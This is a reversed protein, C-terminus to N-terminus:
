FLLYFFSLLGVANPKASLPKGKTPGEALPPRTITKTSSTKVGTVGIGGKGGGKGETEEDISGFDDIQAGDDPIMTVETIPIIVNESIPIDRKKNGGEAGGEAGVIRKGGILGKGGSGTSPKKEGKHSTISYLIEPPFLTKNFEYPRTFPKILSSQSRFWNIQNPKLWDYAAKKTWPNISKAYAHSDLFYLNFLTQNHRKEHFRSTSPPSPPFTTLIKRSTFSLYLSVLSDGSRISRMYNGVGDVSEPGAEGIFNPFTKYLKMQESNNLDIEEDHNGFVITWATLDYFFPTILLHLLLYLPPFVCSNKEGM